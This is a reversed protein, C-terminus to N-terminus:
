KRLANYSDRCASAAVRYQDAALALERAADATGQQMHALLNGADDRGAREAPTATDGSGAGALKAALRKTQELLRRNTADLDRNDAAAQDRQKRAYEEVKAQEAIRRQEEQRAKGQAEERAKSDGLNRDDWRKQWKGDAKSYGADYAETEIHHRYWALGGIILIAAALTMWHRQLWALFLASM